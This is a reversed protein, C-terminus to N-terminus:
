HKSSVPLNHLLRTGNRIMTAPLVTTSSFRKHDLRPFSHAEIASLPAAQWLWELLHWCLVIQFVTLTQPKPTSASLEHLVLHAWPHQGLAAWRSM